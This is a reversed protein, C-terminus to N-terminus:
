HDSSENQNKKVKQEEPQSITQLPCDRIVFDAPHVLSYLLLMSFGTNKKFYDPLYPNATPLISYTHRHFYSYRSM